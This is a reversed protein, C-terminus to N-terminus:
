SKRIPKGPFKYEYVTGSSIKAMPSKRIATVAGALAERAQECATQVAKANGRPGFEDLDRIRSLLMASISEIQWVAQQAGEVLERLAFAEDDARDVSHGLLTDISVEFLDAVAVLEDMRVAREGSEIKAITTPYVTLGKASVLKAMHAQSWGRIERERRFTKRFETEVRENAGM